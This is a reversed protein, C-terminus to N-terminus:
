SEFRHYLQTEEPEKIGMYKLEIAAVASCCARVKRGSAEHLWTDRGDTDGYCLRTNCCASYGESHAPNLQGCCSCHTTESYVKLKRYFKTRTAMSKKMERDEQHTGEQNGESRM